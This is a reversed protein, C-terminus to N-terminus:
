GHYYGYHGNEEANNIVVGIIQAQVDSLQTIAERVAEGRIIGRRAILAVGDAMPALLSADTVALLAPSDLIILDYRQHLQDLVFRMQISGLLESPNPPTPGSTLIQLDFYRSKQIADDM